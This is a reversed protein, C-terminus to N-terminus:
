LPRLSLSQSTSSSTWPHVPAQCDCDSGLGARDGRGQREQLTVTAGKVQKERRALPVPPCARLLCVPETLSCRGRPSCPGHGRGACRALGQRSRKEEQKLVFLHTEAPIRPLHTCEGRGCDPWGWSVSDGESQPGLKPGPAALGPCDSPCLAPSPGQPTPLVAWSRPLTPPPTPPTPPWGPRDVGESM